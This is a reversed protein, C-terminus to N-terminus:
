DLTMRTNALGVDRLRQSAREVRIEDPELAVFPEVGRCGEVLPVIGLLEKADLELFSAIARDGLLLRRDEALWEQELTWQELRDGVCAFRRDQEDVLDIPAVLFELGEEELNERVELHRNRLDARDPRRVLWHHHQGGVARALQRFRKSSATEVEPDVIRRELLLKADDFRSYRGDFCAERLLDSPENLLETPHLQRLHRAHRLGEVPGRCEDRQM